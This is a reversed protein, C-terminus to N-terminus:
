AAGGDLLASVQAQRETWDISPTTIDAYPLREQIKHYLQQRYQRLVTSAHREHMPDWHSAEVCEKDRGAELMREEMYTSLFQKLAGDYERRLEETDQGAEDAAKWKAELAVVEERENTYREREETDRLIFYAANLRCMELMFENRRTPTLEERGIKLVLEKMMQKYQKRVEGPKCTSTLGLVGFYDIYGEDSM